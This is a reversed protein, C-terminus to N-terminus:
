LRQLLEAADAWTTVVREAGAGILRAGSDDGHHRGGTFGWVSMGAAGGAIVGNVSDEIVLCRVPDVGLRRAAYLFLDPAPKSAVVEDSSYVHPAFLDWHGVMMLKTRLSEAGSSSAVAKPQRVSSIAATAGPIEALRARFEARMREALPRRAEGAISRGLRVKADAELGQWWADESTGMFRAMYERRDYILGVEALLALEVEQAIEESNVLVGDCDFIVASIAGHNRDYRSRNRAM